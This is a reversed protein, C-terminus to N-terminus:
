DGPQDEVRGGQDPQHDPNTSQRVRGVEVVPGAMAEGEDLRGDEVGGDDADKEKPWEGDEGEPAQLLLNLSKLLFLLSPPLKPIRFQLTRM